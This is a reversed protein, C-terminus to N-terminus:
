SLIKNIWLLADAENDFIEYHGEFFRKEIQANIIGNASTTIIAIASVKYKQMTNIYVLPNVGYSNTRRSIYGFSRGKFHEQGYELIQTLEKADIIRGEFIESIVLNDVVQVKGFNFNIEAKM